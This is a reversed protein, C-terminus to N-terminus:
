LGFEHYVGCQAFAAVTVGKEGAKGAEADYTYVGVPFNKGYGPFPEPNKAIAYAKIGKPGV